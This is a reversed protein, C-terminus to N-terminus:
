FEKAVYLLTVAKNNERGSGSPCPEKITMQYFVNEEWKFYNYWM